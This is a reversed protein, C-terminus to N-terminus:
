ILVQTTATAEPFPYKGHMDKVFYKRFPIFFLIGLVGGFLSSLFIELFNVTIEPHSAQLIYLAPLTFITGAVIVGSCAGISQIIVNQGLPNKKGLWGSLGVAIIAIPIAAEFVQGVKLGLYAAAASFVVALILGTIVSYPTAEAYDRAPHMVPRYEENEGLEIFANEPLDVPDVEAPDLHLPKDNLKM